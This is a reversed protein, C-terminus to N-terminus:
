ASRASSTRLRCEASSSYTLEADAPARPEARLPLLPETRAGRAIARARRLEADLQAGILVAINSIWLWVLFIIVGGLTGYTKNYSAFNAAYFAFGASALAWLGVAVLGGLSLLRLRGAVNPAGWYLIALILSVLIALVPWKAIDWVAIAAQDAGVVSGLWRAMGGTFVAILGCVAVLLGVVVTIALRVPWIRWIPRGEPVQHVVNSARMFAGVYGSASWLAALLGIVAVVSATTASQQLDRIADTLVQGVAGPVLETVQDILQDTTDTGLMGLISVMVLLGPFISLVSYYTLAAAWDLLDHDLFNSISRRLLAVPGTRPPPADESAAPQHVPDPPLDTRM